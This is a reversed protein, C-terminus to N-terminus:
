QQGPRLTIFLGTADSCLREGHHLTGAVHWKRGDVKDVAVRVTLPEGVPTVSRYNVSLNATRAQRVDAFGVLRGFVDDYMLSIAGGHVTSNTGSHFRGFVVEGTLTQEGVATVRVPPSFTQGRNNNPLMRGFLQGEDGVEHAALLAQAREFLAAVETVTEQPPASGAFADQLRGMALVLDHWGPAARRVARAGMDAWYPNMPVDVQPQETGAETM